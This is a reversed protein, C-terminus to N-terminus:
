KKSYTCIKNRLIKFTRIKGQREITLIVLTGIPGQIEGNDSQVGIIQDKSMLGAEYAPYGKIVDKIYLGNKDDNVYIGIGGYWADHQCEYKKQPRPKPIRKGKQPPLPLTVEVIQSTPKSQNKYVNRTNFDIFLFLILSHLFISQIIAKSM